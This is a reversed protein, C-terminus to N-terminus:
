ATINLISGRDPVGGKKMNHLTDNVMQNLIDDSPVPSLKADSRALKPLPQSQFRNQQASDHASGVRNQINLPLLQTSM